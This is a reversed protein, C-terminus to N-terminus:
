MIKILFVIVLNLRSRHLYLYIPIDLAFLELGALYKLNQMEVIYEYLLGLVKKHNQLGQLFM